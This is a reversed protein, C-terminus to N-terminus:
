RRYKSQRALGVLNRLLIAITVPGIGGPVPTILSAKEAAAKSVDGVLVGGDESTGADFIVVGEKIMDATIFRPQGIGSIIIDAQMLVASYFTEKTIVEVDAGQARAYHAAPEGVLRGNGLVIVKKGKWSISHIASIEDIAGVVPSLCAHEAKGYQFGDPDKDPAVAVLVADRDIQAPMPLQVVVGDSHLSAETVGAIVDATSADLPLEMIHLAIGVSAAKRKKMELYNQTEFNPACTIASLRPQIDLIAVGSAVEDLITAAIKKGDVIM